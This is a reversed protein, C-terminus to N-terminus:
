DHLYYLYTSTLDTHFIHLQQQQLFPLLNMIVNTNARVMEAPKMPSMANEVATTMPSFTCEPPPSNKHLQERLKMRMEREKGKRYLREFPSGRPKKRRKKKKTSKLTADIAGSKNTELSKRLIKEPSRLPFEPSSIVKSENTRSAAARQSPTRAYLIVEGGDDDGDDDNEEEQRNDEKDRNVNRDKHNNKKTSNRSLKSPLPRRKEHAKALRAGRGGSAGGRNRQSSGSPKSPPGPLVQAEEKTDAYSVSHVLSMETLVPPLELPESHDIPLLDKAKERWSGSVRLSCSSPENIETNQTPISKHSSEAKAEISTEGDEVQPKNSDTNEVERQSTQITDVLSDVTEHAADTEPDPTDGERHVNTQADLPLGPTNKDDVNGTDNTFPQNLPALPVEYVIATEGVGWSDGDLDRRDARSQKPANPFM